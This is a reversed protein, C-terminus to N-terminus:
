KLTYLKKSNLILIISIIFFGSISYIIRDVSNEIWWSLGRFDNIVSFYIVFITFFYFILNVILFNFFIKKKTSLNNINFFVFASIIFLWIKYKFIAVLLGKLVLIVLNIIDYFHYESSINASHILNLSLYKYFILNKIILFTWSLIIFTLIDKKNKFYKILFSLSLTFIILFLYGENKIWPIFNLIFFCL